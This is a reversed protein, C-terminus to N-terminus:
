DSARHASLVVVLIWPAWYRVEGWDLYANLRIADASACLEQGLEFVAVPAGLGVDLLPAPAFCAASPRGSYLAAARTAHQQVAVIALDAM